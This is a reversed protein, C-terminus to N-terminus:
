ATAVKENRSRLRGRLAFTVAALTIEAPLVPKPIFGDGGADQAMERSLPDNRSTVFLVPTAANLETQRIRTCAQFGDMGPMLVDLFIVDFTKKLTLALAAEGSEAYDPKGFALQLACGLV